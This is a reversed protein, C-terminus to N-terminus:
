GDRSVWDLKQEILATKLRKLARLHRQRFTNPSVGLETAAETASLHEAHRLLLAERDTDDLTAIAADLRERIERRSAQLSPSTIEGVLFSALAISSEHGPLHGLTAERRVDRAQAHVHRRSLEALKQRGLFRLWAFFSVERKEAYEPLRNIVDLQLEQYVDSEDLRGKLRADMRVSIMRRLRLAHLEMLPGFASQDGRAVRDILQSETTDIGDTDM